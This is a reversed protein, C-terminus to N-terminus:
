ALKLFNIYLKLFLRYHTLLDQNNFDKSSISKQFQKWARKQRSEDVTV